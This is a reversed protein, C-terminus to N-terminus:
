VLINVFWFVLFCFIFLFYVFFNHIKRLSFFFGFFEWKLTQAIKAPGFWDGPKINLVRAEQVINHISYPHRVGSADLFWYLLTDHFSDEQLYNWNRDKVCCLLARALMMQGSRVMCGWGMDSTLNSNALPAFGSRYTFWFQSTFATMFEHLEYSTHPILSQADGLNQDVDPTFTRGM